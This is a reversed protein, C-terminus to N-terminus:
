GTSIPCAADSLGARHLTRLALRLTRPANRLRLVLLLLPARPAARHSLPTRVAMKDLDGPEGASEDKMFDPLTDMTLGKKDTCSSVPADGDVCPAAPRARTSLHPRLPVGPQIACM